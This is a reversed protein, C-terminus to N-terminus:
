DIIEVKLKFIASEPMVKEGGGGVREFRDNCGRVPTKYIYAFPLRDGFIKFHDGDKLNCLYTENNMEIQKQPRNM